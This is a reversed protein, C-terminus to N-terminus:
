RHLSDVIVEDPSSHRECDARTWARVHDHIDIWTGDIRWNRFYTYVTQPPPFEEPLDRWKCGQVLVSFIANIVAWMNVERPRGGPKAAPILPEILEFQSRKLNSSYAKSM